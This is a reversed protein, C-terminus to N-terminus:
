KKNKGGFEILNSTECLKVNSEYTNFFLEAERSFAESKEITKLQCEASYSVGKM